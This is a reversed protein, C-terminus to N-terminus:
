FKIMDPPQHKNPVNHRRRVVKTAFSITRRRGTSKDFIYFRTYRTHRKGWRRQRNCWCLARSEIRMRNITNKKKKKAFPQFDISGRNLYFIQKWWIPMSPKPTQCRNVRTTDVAVFRCRTQTNKKREAGMWIWASIAHVIRARRTFPVAISWNVLRWDKRCGCGTTWFCKSQVCHTASARTMRRRSRNLFQVAM